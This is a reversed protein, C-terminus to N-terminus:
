KTFTLVKEPTEVLSSGWVTQGAPTDTLSQGSENVYASRDSAM